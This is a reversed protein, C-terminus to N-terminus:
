VSNSYCFDPILDNRFCLLKNGVTQLSCIGLDSALDTTFAEDELPPSAAYERPLSVPFSRLQM